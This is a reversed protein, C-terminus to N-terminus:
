EDRVLLIYHGLPRGVWVGTIQESIALQSLEDEMQRNEMESDDKLANKESVRRLLNISSENEVNSPLMETAGDDPLINDRLNSFFVM